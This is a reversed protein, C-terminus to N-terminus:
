QVYRWLPGAPKLREAPITDVKQSFYIPRQDLNNTLIQDITPQNQVVTPYLRTILRQYWPFQCLSYNIVAIGPARQLLEGDGWVGYWVAFTDRDESTIVLSNPELVAAVKQLYDHAELDSRVSLTPLRLSLLVACGLLLGSALWPALPRKPMRAQTWDLAECLGVASWIVMLWVVPLLYIDSDRTYYGITYISVPIVWLLSFNRLHPRTQDWTSLGLLALGLGIPTLQTTLLFAWNAIRGLITNAPVSFLYGHYAAASVLWWLDALNDAFGWNVPAPMGARHAVLPIRLYFLLGVLAGFGLLLGTQWFRRWGGGQGLWWYYYIAPLLLVSTLHHAFGLAVPIVLRRPQRPAAFTIWGLLAVILAHLAYVETIVAQSWPLPSITWALGACFAWVWRWPQLPLLYYVTLVTIYVSASACVVSLLNGRWALDSHPWLLGTFWLWGQLILMYLPYGPPHPVGNTVAAALLDGGDAGEHAWTFRPATTAWYLLL